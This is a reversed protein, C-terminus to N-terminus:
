GRRLRESLRKLSAEAEAFRAFRREAKRFAATHVQRRGAHVRVGLAKHLLEHYVVFDIVFSPLRADDLVPNLWVTDGPAEYRGFEQRRIRRSWALHPAPLAGDFYDRNVRRFSDGLDVWAGRAAGAPPRRFRELVSLHAQFGPSEVHASILLRLKRKRTYPLGLRVLSSLVDPPADFFAQQATLRWGGPSPVFRYLSATNDFRVEVRGDVGNAARLAGLHRRRVEPDCLVGFWAYARRAPDALSHPDVGARDCWASIREFVDLAQAGVENLGSEDQTPDARRLADLTALLHNRTVQVGRLNLTPQSASQRADTAQASLPRPRRPM